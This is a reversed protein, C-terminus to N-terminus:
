QKEDECRYGVKAPPPFHASNAPAPYNSYRSYNYNQNYSPNCPDQYNQYAPPHSYNTPPCYNSQYTAPQCHNAQYSVPACSSSVVVPPPPPPVFQMPQCIPAQMPQSIAMPAAQYVNAPPLYPMSLSAPQTTRTHTETTAVPMACPGSAVPSTSCCSGLLSASAVLFLYKVAHRQM